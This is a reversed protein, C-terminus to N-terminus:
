LVPVVVIYSLVQGCANFPWVSVGKLKPQSSKEKSYKPDLYVYLFRSHISIWIVRMRQTIM